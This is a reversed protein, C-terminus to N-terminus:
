ARAHGAFAVVLVAPIHARPARRAPHRARACIVRRPLAPPRDRPRPRRLRGARRLRAVEPNEVPRGRPRGGAGRPAKDLVAPCCARRSVRSCICARACHDRARPTSLAHAAVGARFTGYTRPPARPPSSPPNGGQVRRSEGVRGLLPRSRLSRGGAQVRRSEGVRGLLPRSRLSRGEARARGARLPV